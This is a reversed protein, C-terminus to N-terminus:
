IWSQPAKTTDSRVLRHPKTKEQSNFNAFTDSHQLNLHVVRGELSFRPIRIHRIKNEEEAKAKKTENYPGKEDPANLVVFFLFLNMM